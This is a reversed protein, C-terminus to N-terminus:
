ALPLGNEDMRCSLAHMFNEVAFAIRKSEEPTHKAEVHMVPNRWANKVSDLSAYMEDFLDKEAWPSKAAAVGAKLTRVERLISGWNKDNGIYGGTAGLCKHLARLALEMVRMLHFVAATDRGLAMCKTAEEIDFAASAFQTNVTAGFPESKAYLKAEDTTLALLTKQQFDDPLRAIIQGLPGEVNRATLPDGGQLTSMLRNAAAASSNAELGQLARSLAEAQGILQQRGSQSLPTAGGGQNDINRYLMWSSALTMATRVFDAQLTFM